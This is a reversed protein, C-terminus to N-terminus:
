LDFGEEHLDVPPELVIRQIPAALGAALGTTPLESGEAETDVSGDAEPEAPGAVSWYGGADILRVGFTAEMHQRPGSIAMSNGLPPGVDFGLESLGAAVNSMDEPAPLLRDLNARSPPEAAVSGPDNGTGDQAEARSAGPLAPRVVVVATVVSQDDDRGPEGPPPDLTM